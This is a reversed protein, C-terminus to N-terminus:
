GTFFRSYEAGTEFRVGMARGDIIPDFRLFDFNPPEAGVRFGDGEPVLESATGYSDILALKGERIVIWIAPYWPDYSRFFGVSGNWEGPYEPTEPLPEGARV